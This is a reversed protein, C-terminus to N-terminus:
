PKISVSESTLLTQKFTKLWRKIQKRNDPGMRLLLKQSNPLAELQPDAFQYYVSERKLAMPGEVEPTELMVAIGKLLRESLQEPPQGLQQFASELLPQFRRTLDALHEVDLATVFGVFGSYRQFNAEALWEAGDVKSTTFVSRPQLERTKNLPVLKQLIEGRSLGDIFAVLRQFIFEGEVWPAITEPLGLDQWHDRLFQDSDVLTPLPPRQPKNDTKVTQEPSPPEIPAGPTAPTQSIQEQPPTIIAPSAPTETEHHPAPQRYFMYAAAVLLVVVIFALSLGRGRAPEPAESETRNPEVNSDPTEM